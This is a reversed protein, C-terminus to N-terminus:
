CGAIWEPTPEGLFERTWGSMSKVKGLVINKKSIWGDQFTEYRAGNANKGTLPCGCLIIKEYGIKIATLVGLLASSGSPAEFPTIIDVGDVHHGNFFDTHCILRYDTNGVLERRKKILPIDDPHYTAVFKIDWPYLHVADLGIAMFDFKRYDPVLKIEEVTAQHAGTVILRKM